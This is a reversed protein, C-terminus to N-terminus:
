RRLRECLRQLRQSPELKETDFSTYMRRDVVCCFFFSFFFTMGLALSGQPLLFHCQIRQSVTM